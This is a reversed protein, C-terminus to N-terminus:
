DGERSSHCASVLISRVSFTWESLSLALLGHCLAGLLCVWGLWRHLIGYATPSLGCVHNVVLSTSRGLYLPVLNVISVVALRRVLQPRSSVGIACAVVNAAALILVGLAAAVNFNSTGNRRTVVLSQSVYKRVLGTVRRRWLLLAEAAHWGILVVFVSGLSIAYVEEFNM